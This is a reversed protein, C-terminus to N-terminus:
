RGRKPRNSSPKPKASTKTAGDEADSERPCLARVRTELSSLAGEVDLAEGTGQDDLTLGEGEPVQTKTKRAKGKGKGMEQRLRKIHGEAMDRGDSGLRAGLHKVADRLPALGVLPVAGAAVLSLKV